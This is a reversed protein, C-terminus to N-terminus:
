GHRKAQAASDLYKQVVEVLKRAGAPKTLCDDMGVKMCRDLDDKMADATMAIIPIHNVELKKEMERIHKATEFGDLRPMQLDMLILDFDETELISLVECGDAATKVSWGQHELNIAAAMRSVSDDDALLIKAASRRERLSHRTVLPKPETELDENLSLCIARLLEGQLLPTMLYASIGIDRCRAADGRQGASTLLVVPKINESHEKLERAFSFGDMEECFEMEILVISFNRDALAKRAADIGVVADAFEVWNNIYGLIRLAKKEEDAVILASIKKLRALDIPKVNFDQRNKKVSVAFSFISGKGEESEVRIQGGLMEALQSSIALGLGTGHYAHHGPSKFGAFPKFIQEKRDLPIGPGDDRVSFNLKVEEDNEMQKEVNISINGHQTFNIANATLNVLIQKIRGPDGVLRDPASDDVSCTLESNNKRALVSLCNVTESILDRLKFPISEIDLKGAEIKSFDLVDNVIDLLRHASQSITKTYKKQEANLNTQLLMEAMGLVGNMPTRIEHSVHSIFEDKITGAKEAAKKAKLLTEDNLWRATVDPCYEIVQVVRGEEDFVPSANVEVIQKDGDPSFHVHELLLSKKSSIVEPLPCACSDEECPKDRHHTIVYCPQGLEKESLGSAKNALVIAHNEPNIVYFPHPLSDIAAKLLKNRKEHAAKQKKDETIDSAISLHVLRGDMWEIARDYVLFWRRSVPNFFEWSHVGNGQNKLKRIIDNTCFACPESGRLFIEWCKGGVTEAFDKRCYENMFLLEYTDMDAAYVAADLGDLVTRFIALSTQLSAEFRLRSEVEKTLTKNVNELESTRDRVRGELMDRAEAIEAETRERRRVERELSANRKVLSILVFGSSLVILLSGWLYRMGFNLLTSEFSKASSSAVMAWTQGAFSFSYASATKREGSPDIYEARPNKGRRLEGVFADFSADSHAIEDFFTGPPYRDHAVFVGSSNMIWYSAGAIGKPVVAALLEEIKITFLILGNFEAQESLVPMAIVLGQKGADAGKFTIFEFAPELSTRQISEIFYERFSFDKGELNPAVVAIRVTGGADVFGIDNVHIVKCYDLAQSLRRRAEGPHSLSPDFSSALLKLQSVLLDIKNEVALATQRAVVYQQEYLREKAKELSTTSARGILMLGAAAAAAALLPILKSHSLEAKKM